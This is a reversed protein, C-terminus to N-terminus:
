LNMGTLIGGQEYMELVTMRAPKINFLLYNRAPLGLALCICTRIVGGHSVVVLEQHESKQFLALMESVRLVFDTVKEGGPFVFDDYQSFGAVLAEDKQLIQEWNKMEWEGFDMEKLRKDFMVDCSWDGQSKLASLTQRTRLMPSCYIVGPNKTQFFTQLQSIRDLGQNCVPIDTTGVLRGKNGPGTSGHRILYITKPFM